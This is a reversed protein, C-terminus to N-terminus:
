AMEECSLTLDVAPHGQIIATGAMRFGARAFARLSADNGTKVYAHIIRASSMRFLRKAARAIVLSGLGMGRSRADLGISIVAESGNVECRVQGIPGEDQDVAVCFVSQPDALREQLWRLHQLWPIPAPSFSVARIAADNAWEWLLRGDAETASRLRIREGRLRMLVRDTGMGDVLERARVAMERRLDASDILRAAAAAISAPEVDAHWGLNAVVGRRALEETLGRQNDAQTLVMSPVGMFALEWNTSGGSSIAVQSRAMLEPMNTVDHLLHTQFPLGALIRRLEECHAYAPGAVCTIELNRPSLLRLGEIAKLTLNCPDSGGMTVLLHHAVRPIERQMGQWPLFEPQLLVYSTGLLLQTDPDTLYRLQPANINQNLLINAHYETWHAVDDIMLLRYGAKRIAQQYEPDFHYGDLVLWDARVAELTALTQALDAPDPHPRDMPIVTIGAEGVRRFVPDAARCSLFLVRDGESRAAHALALCRMLHGTGIRADADTRIAINTGRGEM